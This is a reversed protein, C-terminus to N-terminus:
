VKDLQLKNGSHILNGLKLVTDTGYGPLSHLTLDGNWYEAYVKCMALGIGLKYRYSREMLKILPTEFKFKTGTLNTHSMPELSTHRYPRNAKDVSIAKNTQYLHDYLSVTQLGPLRHFNELSESAQEKSKGFSWINKDNIPIGGARDSIRFLFSEDNKVITITIPQPTDLGLRIYDKVTAEYTNRLIEGLLYKLHTPLFYFKLDVEGDIFLKPLAMNEYYMDKIFKECTKSAQLIYEKASCEQFIDGLVLTNEKKGSSYNATISIHEEVILRRSIRARLLSSLLEDMKDQPYLDLITCELAGMVLHPLNLSNFDQLIRRLFNAFKENDEITRITPFKRFREFINYYSEYVQVFHFNNVVHFPLQQLSHLKHAMRIALEEKVFKGSNIIKQRTLQASDDYYQALQMLSVPHPKKRLYDEILVTRNHYYHQQNVHRSGTPFAKMTELVYPALEENIPRIPSYKTFNPTQSIDPTHVSHKWRISRKLLKKMTEKVMRSRRVTM